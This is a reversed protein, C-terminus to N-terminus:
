LDSPPAQGCSAVAKRWRRHTRRNEASPAYPAMSSWRTAMLSTGGVKGPDGGSYAAQGTRRGPRKSMLGFNRPTFASGAVGAQSLLWKLGGRSGGDFCGSAGEESRTSRTKSPRLRLRANVRLCCPGRPLTRLLAAAICLRLSTISSRVHRQTRRAEVLSTIRPYPLNRADPPTKKGAGEPHRLQQAMLFGYAATALSAHHHFGRWGRGEYDGLGLVQKLDQYGCEIRWRMKAELVMRELAIDAPLTSLWYKMPEKHGEPWEILAWQEPRQQARVDDRHEARVRVRAFRSRLTLNTGERWEVTHWHDAPLAHALEKM